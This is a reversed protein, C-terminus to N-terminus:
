VLVSRLDADSIPGIDITEVSTSDTVLMGNAVEFGTLVNFGSGSAPTGADVTYDLADIADRVAKIQASIDQGGEPTGVAGELDDLRKLVGDETAGNVGAVKNLEEDFGAEVGQARQAEADVLEKAYAAITGSEPNEGAAPLATVDELDSVRDGLSSIASNMAAADDPHNQIWAAIENLTDLAEKASQPILQAALEEAAITRVSKNADQGVLTTVKNDLANFSTSSVYDLLISQLASASQVDTLSLKYEVHGDENEGNHLITTMTFGTFHNAADTDISVTAAGAATASKIKSWLLQVGAIDLFQQAAM